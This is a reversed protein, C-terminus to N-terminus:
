SVSWATHNALRYFVYPMVAIWILLLSWLRGKLLNYDTSLKSWSHGAVFHGFGFEFAITLVLWVVGILWAQGASAIPWLRTLGWVVIGMFMIATITSIQHAALESVKKGYTYERLVGNAIAVAALLLWAFLYRILVAPLSM